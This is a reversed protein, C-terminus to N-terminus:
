FTPIGAAFSRFGCNPNVRGSLRIRREEPIVSDVMYKAYVVQNLELQCYQTQVQVIFTQGVNVALTSDYVYGDRPAETIVNYPEGSRIIGIRRNAGPAVVVRSVPLVLLRGDPDIDFGLDFSGAADPRVTLRQPVLIVTPFNAPSGTLAWVEISADANNQTARPAFPDPGCGIAAAGALLLSLAGVRRARHSDVSTRM